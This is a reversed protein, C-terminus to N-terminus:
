PKLTATDKAPPAFSSTGVLTINKGTPGSGWDTVVRDHLAGGMLTLTVSTRPNGDNIGVVVFSRSQNDVTLTLTIDGSQSLIVQIRFPAGSQVFPPVIDVSTM